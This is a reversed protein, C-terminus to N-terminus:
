RNEKGDEEVEFIEDSINLHVNGDGFLTELLSLIGEAIDYLLKKEGISTKDIHFSLVTNEPRNTM